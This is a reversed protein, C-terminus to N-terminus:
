SLWKIEIAFGDTLNHYKFNHLIIRKQEIMQIDLFFVIQVEISNDFSGLKHIIKLAFRVKKEELSYFIVYVCRFYRISLDFYACLLIFIFASVTFAFANCM